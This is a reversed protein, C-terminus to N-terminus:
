FNYRWVLETDLICLCRAVGILVVPGNTAALAGFELNARAAVWSVVALAAAM